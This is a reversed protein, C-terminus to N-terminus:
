SGEQQSQMRSFGSLKTLGLSLCLGVAALVAAIASAKGMETAQFGTLYMHLPLLRTAYGPGGATLVFVLDFYTLGGVLMLTSSTVITYKLQPLTISFFQRVAGAGDLAAAEYMSGPIQRVGAQFLLTHLPVFHWAIIFVVTALVTDPSGLWNGSLSELGSASALGFNPDLLNKFTLAVAASSLLLPIFYFLALWARVRGARAIYVGLLLSVPMQILWTGIMVKFTIGLSTRTVPDTLVYTWNDFGSWAPTGLGDWDTLSLAIAGFLPVVAFTCFLVLAPALLWPSPGHRRTAGRGAPRAGRLTGATTSVQTM